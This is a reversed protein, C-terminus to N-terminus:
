SNSQSRQEIVIWHVVLVNRALFGPQWKVLSFDYVDDALVIGIPLIKNLIVRGNEGGFESDPPLCSFFLVPVHPCPQNRAPSQLLASNNM